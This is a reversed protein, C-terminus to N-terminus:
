PCRLAPWTLRSCLSSRSPLDNNRGLAICRENSLAYSRSVGKLLGHSVLTPREFPIISVAGLDAAYSSLLRLHHLHLDAAILPRELIGEFGELLKFTASVTTCDECAQLTSAPTNEEEQTGFVCQSM